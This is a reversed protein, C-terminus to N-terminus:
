TTNNQDFAGGLFIGTVHFMLDSTQQINEERLKQAGFAQATMPLTRISEQVRRATVVVEEPNAATPAPAPATQAVASSAAIAAAISVSACLVGRLSNSITM